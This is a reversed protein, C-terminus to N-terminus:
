RFDAPPPSVAPAPAAGLGYRTAIRQGHNAPVLVHLLKERLLWRIVHSVSQQRLGLMAAIRDQPLVFGEGEEGRRRYEALKKDLAKAIQRVAGVGWGPTRQIRPSLEVWVEDLIDQTKIEKYRTQFAVVLDEYGWTPRLTSVLTCVDPPDAEPSLGLVKFAKIMHLDVAGDRAEPAVGAQLREFEKQFEQLDM